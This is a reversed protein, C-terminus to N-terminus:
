LWMSYNKQAFRQAHRIQEFIYNTPYGNVWLRYHCKREYPIKRPTYNAVEFQVGKYEFKRKM